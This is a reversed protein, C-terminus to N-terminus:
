LIRLPTLLILHHLEKGNTQLKRTKCAKKLLPIVNLCTSLHTCLVASVINLWSVCEADRAQKHLAM